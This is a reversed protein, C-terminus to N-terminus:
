NKLTEEGTKAGKSRLYEIISPDTAIDLIMRGNNNRANVNAGHDVLYKTMKMDNAKVAWALPTMGMIDAVEVNANHKLLYDAIDYKGENLAIYLPSSGTNVTQNVDAGNEVLFKIIDNHGFKVAYALATWRARNKGNIDVGKKVYSVVKSTQGQAAATVFKDVVEDAYVSLTVLVVFLTSLLAKM